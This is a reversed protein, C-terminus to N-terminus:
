KPAEAIVQEAHAIVDPPVPAPEFSLMMRRRMYGPGLLVDWISPPKQPAFEGERRLWRLRREAADLTRHAEELEVQKALDSM